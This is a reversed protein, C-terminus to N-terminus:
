RAAAPCSGPLIRVSKVDFEIMPRGSQSTPGSHAAMAAKTPDNNQAAINPSPYLGGVIRLRKSTVGIVEVHKGVYDKVSLGKLLYMQGDDDLTFSNRVTPNVAVCGDVTVTNPKPPASSSQTDTAALAIVALVAAGIM